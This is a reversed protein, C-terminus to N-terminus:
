VDEDNFILKSGIYNNNRKLNMQKNIRENISPIYDDDEVAEPTNFFGMESKPVKVGGSMSKIENITKLHQDIRHAYNPSILRLKQLSDRINDMQSKLEERNKLNFRIDDAMKYRFFADINAMLEELKLEMKPSPGQTNMINLLVDINNGIQKFEEKNKKEDINGRHKYDPHTLISTTIKDKIQKNINM